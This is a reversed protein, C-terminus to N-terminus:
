YVDTKLKILMGRDEKRLKCSVSNKVIGNGATDIVGKFQQIMCTKIFIHTILFM